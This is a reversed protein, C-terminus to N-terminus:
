SVKIIKYKIEGSPTQMAVQEGEKKGFVVKGLPSDISLKNNVIDAEEPSVLQYTKQTKDSVKELEITSGLAAFESHTIEIVEHYKLMEEIEQIRTENKAQDARSTHYEANESLDGHARAEEVRSRIQGRLTHTREVLEKELEEKKQQTIKYTKM